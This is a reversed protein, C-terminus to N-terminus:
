LVIERILEIPCGDPWKESPAVLARLLGVDAGSVAFVRAEELTLGADVAERIRRM